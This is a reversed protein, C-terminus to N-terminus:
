EVIRVEEAQMGTRSKTIIFSVIQGASLSQFKDNQINKFHVFLDEGSNATIFGFGEADDFSKVTGTQRNSM